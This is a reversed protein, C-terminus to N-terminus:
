QSPVAASCPLSASRSHNPVALLRMASMWRSSDLGNDGSGGGSRDSEPPSACAGSKTAPLGALDNRSAAGLSGSGDRVLAGQAAGSLM